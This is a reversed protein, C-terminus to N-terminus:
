SQPLASKIPLLISALSGPLTHTAAFSLNLWAGMMALSQPSRLSLDLVFVNPRSSSALLTAEDPPASRAATAVTQSASVGVAVSSSDSLLDTPTIIVMSSPAGRGWGSHPLM